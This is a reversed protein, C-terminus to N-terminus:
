LGASNCDGCEDSCPELCQGLLASSIANAAKTGKEGAVAAGARYLAITAADRVPRADDSNGSNTNKNRGFM